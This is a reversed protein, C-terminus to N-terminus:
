SAGPWDKNGLFESYFRLRVHCQITPTSSNSPSMVGAAVQLVPSKAPNATTLAGFNSRDTEYQLGTVNSLEACDVHGRLVIMQSGTNNVSRVLVQPAEDLYDYYTGGIPNLLSPQDYAVAVYMGDASPDSFTLTIDAKRVLYEAYGLSCIQDYFRPQHGTGSYDPDYLSNLRWIQATGASNGSSSATLTVTQCYDLVKSMRVPFPLAVKPLKSLVGSDARASKRAKGNKRQEVPIYIDQVIHSEPLAAYLRGPGEDV